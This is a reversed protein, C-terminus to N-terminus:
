FNYKPICIAFILCLMEYSFRSFPMKNLESSVDVALLKQLSEVDIRAQGEDLHSL